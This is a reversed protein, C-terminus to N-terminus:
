ETLDPSYDSSTGKKSNRKTEGNSEEGKRNSRTPKKSTKADEEIRQADEPSLDKVSMKAYDVALTFPRDVQNRSKLLEINLYGKEKSDKTAVFTWALSSHEKVAQSYRLKGEDNVQALLCVVKNNNEAYIKGFRAIQGLKRWQDDGDAGKLLTIYDIYIVDSNFTHLAAMLEEISLDEKPKFITYRGNARAVKKDFRTFKRWVADKEGSALKKLFIDISSMGSLSSASRAIMEPTSMELPVLSTKYGILSQNIALQNALLSKGSGSAGGLTVLSGRFFGGNITDFTKFGTPICNDDDEGYLIDELIKRVNSDRGIHVIDAEASKRLQIKSVISSVVDSLEAPNIKPEELKRLLKKALSYYLRTQRYENLSSILQDIQIQTKASVSASSLFERADESLGVDQCLLKYNPPEGKKQFFASIRGFVEKAEDTYFYDSSLRSLLAGSVKLDTSCLSKLAVAETPANFLRTM